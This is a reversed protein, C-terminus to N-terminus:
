QDEKFVKARKAERLAERAKHESKFDTLMKVKYMDEGMTDFYM